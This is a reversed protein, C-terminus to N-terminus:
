GARQDAQSAQSLDCRAYEGQPPSSHTDNQMVCKFGVSELWEKTIDNM